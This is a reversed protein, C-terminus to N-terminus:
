QVIDPIKNSPSPPRLAHDHDDHRSCVSPDLLNNLIRRAVAQTTFDALPHAPLVDSRLVSAVIEAVQHPEDINITHVYPEGVSELYHHQTRIDDEWNYTNPIHGPPRRLPNLYVLGNVLAELPTPGLIPDGLGILFRCKRLVKLFDERRMSGLNKIHPPLVLGSGRLKAENITAYMFTGNLANLMKMVGERQFYAAEKGWILGVPEKQVAALEDASAPRNKVLLGVFDNHTKYPYPTILQRPHFPAPVYNDSSGFFELLRAQCPHRRTVGMEALLEATGIWVRETVYFDVWDLNKDKIDQPNDVLIVRHGSCLLATVYSAFLVVEGMPGGSMEAREKIGKLGIGLVAVTLQRWPGVDEPWALTPDELLRVCEAQEFEDAKILPPVDTPKSRTWDLVTLGDITELQVQQPRQRAAAKRKASARAAPKRLPGDDWDNVGGGGSGDTSAPRLFVPSILLLCLCLLVLQTACRGNLRVSHAMKVLTHGLLITHNTPLRGGGQEVGARRSLGFDELSQEHVAGRPGPLLHTRRKLNDVKKKINM